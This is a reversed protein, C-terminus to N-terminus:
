KFSIREGTGGGVGVGAAACGALRDLQQVSAPEQLMLSMVPGAINEFENAM